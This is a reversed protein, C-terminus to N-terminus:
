FRLLTFAAFLNNLFHGVIGPLTSRTVHAVTGFLLGLLFVYLLALGNFYYMGHCLTFLVATVVIAWLPSLFVCLSRQLFGRFIVEEAIPAFLIALFALVKLQAHSFAAYPSEVEIGIAQTFLGMLASMALMLFLTLLGAQFLVWFRQGIRLGLCDRMSVHYRKGLILFTLLWAGHISLNMVLLKQEPLTQISGYSMVASVLLPSVFFSLLFSVIVTKLRWPPKPTNSDDALLHKLKTIEPQM